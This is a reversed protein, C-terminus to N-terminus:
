DTVALPTLAMTSFSNALSQQDWAGMWPSWALAMAQQQHPPPLLLPAFSPGGPDRYYAPATLLAHHLPYVSQQQPPRMGPWMSITDTWSNYFSPWV